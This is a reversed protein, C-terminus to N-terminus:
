APVAHDVDALFSEGSLARRELVPDQPFDTRPTVNNTQALVRLEADKIQVFHEYGPGAGAESALTGANHVHVAGDPRDTMSASEAHAISLLADDLNARLAQRTGFFVLTEAVVLVGVCLLAMSWALRRRFTRVQRGRVMM